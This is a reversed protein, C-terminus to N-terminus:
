EAYSPFVRQDLNVRISEKLTHAFVSSRTDTGWSGLSDTEDRM